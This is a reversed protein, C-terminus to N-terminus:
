ESKKKTLFEDTFHAQRKPQAFKGANYQKSDGKAISLSVWDASQIMRSLYVMQGIHYTYHALQRNMAEVVTHGMNRIYIVTDFNDENVSDIAQFLCAWGAEWKELVEAKIMMGCEFEGERDRWEKEDDTTLFNTWRSLM